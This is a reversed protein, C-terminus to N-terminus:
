TDFVSSMMVEIAAIMGLIALGRILPMRDAMPLALREDDICHQEGVMARGIARANRRTRALM